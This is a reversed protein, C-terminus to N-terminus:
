QLQHQKDIAFYVFKCYFLIIVNRAAHVALATSVAANVKNQETAVPGWVNTASRTIGLMSRCKSPLLLLSSIVSSSFTVHYPLPRRTVSEFAKRYITASPRDSITLMHIFIITLSVCLSVKSISLCRSVHFVSLGVYLCVRLCDPLCACVSM